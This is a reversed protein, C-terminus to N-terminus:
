GGVGINVGELELEIDTGGSVIIVTGPVQVAVVDHGGTVTGGGVPQM